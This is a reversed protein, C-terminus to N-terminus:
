TFTGNGLGDGCQVSLSSVPFVTTAGGALSSGSFNMQKGNISLTEVKISGGAPTLVQTSGAKCPISSCTVLTAGTPVQNLGLVNAVNDFLNFALQEHMISGGARVVTKGNGNVDWALGIRPSINDHDGRYAASEGAGVQVLGTPANPDFNGLLNNRDKLVTILEYRLGLNLILRPK